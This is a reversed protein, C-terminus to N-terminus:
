ARELYKPPGDRWSIRSLWLWLACAALLTLTSWGASGAASDFLAVVAGIAMVLYTAVWGYKHGVGRYRPIHLQSLRCVAAFGVSLALADTALTQALIMM